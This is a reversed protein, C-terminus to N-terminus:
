GDDERPWTSSRGGHGCSGSAAAAEWPWEGLQCRLHALQSGLISKGQERATGRREGMGALARELEGITSCLRSALFVCAYIGTESKRARQQPWNTGRSPSLLHLGCLGVIGLGVYV